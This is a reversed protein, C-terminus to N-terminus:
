KKNTKATGLHIPFSQWSLPAVTDERVNPVLHSDTTSTVLPSQQVPIPTKDSM